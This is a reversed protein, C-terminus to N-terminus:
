LALPQRAHLCCCPRAKHRQAQHTGTGRKRQGRCCWASSMAIHGSSCWRKAASSGSGSSPPLAWTKPALALLEGAAPPMLLVTAEPTPPRRRPRLLPVSSGSVTIPQLMRCALWAALTLAMQLARLACAGSASTRCSPESVLSLSPVPALTSASRVGSALGQLRTLPAGRKRSFSRALRRGLGCGATQQGGAGCAQPKGVAEAHPQMGFASRCVVKANVSERASCQTAGVRCCM